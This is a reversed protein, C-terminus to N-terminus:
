KCFTASIILMTNWLEPTQSGGTNGHRDKVARRTKGAEEGPPGGAEKQLFTRGARDPDARDM